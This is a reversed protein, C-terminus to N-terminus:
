YEFTIKFDDFYAVKNGSFGYVKIQYNPKIPKDIPFYATFEFWQNPSEVTKTLSYSRWIQVVNNNNIDMVVGLGEAPDPSNIWGNVVVRKPLAENINEFYERYAYTYVTKDDVKTVFEGSHAKGNEMKVVTIENIWSPIMAAANEMDNSIVVNSQGAKADAAVPKQNSNSCGFLILGTLMIFLLKKM